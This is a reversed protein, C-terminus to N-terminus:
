VRERCSARGIEAQPMGTKGITWQLTVRGAITPDKLAVRAYCHHVDGYHARITQTPSIRRAPPSPKVPAKATKKPPAKKTVRKKRPRRTRKPAPPAEDAVFIPAQAIIKIGGETSGDPAAADSVAADTVTADTGRDPRSADVAVAETAPASPASVPEPPPAEPIETQEACAVLLALVCLAWMSRMM